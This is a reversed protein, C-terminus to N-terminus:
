EVQAPSAIRSSAHSFEKKKKEKKVFIRNCPMTTLRKEKGLVPVVDSLAEVDGLSTRHGATTGERILCRVECVDLCDIIILLSVKLVVKPQM